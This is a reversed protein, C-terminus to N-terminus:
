PARFCGATHDNVMGVAQMYAYMITPGVFSFGRSKLDRSFLQSEPSEAPIEKWAAWPGRRIPAGDVFRWAYADFSGFEDVVDLFRRSNRIASEVKARNRIIGEDALLRDVSRRNFRAVKAADFGAFARRYGARRKLITLWSLGAQAGELVLHEFLHRDDHSPVGWEEDHYALYLPHDSVWGCRRLPARDGKL